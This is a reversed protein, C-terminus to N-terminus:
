PSAHPLRPSGALRRRGQDADLPKSERPRGPTESAKDGTSRRTESRARRPDGATLWVAQRGPHRLRHPRSPQHFGKGKRENAPSPRGLRDATKLVRYVSTPSVAVIDDDLMMFALRRYGELPHQREYELIAWREWAELWHDRPVQANHENAKGYRTRWSYFKSLGIGLWLVLTCLAIETKRSWSGIFDVM